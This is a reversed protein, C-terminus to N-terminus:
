AWETPPNSPQHAPQNSNLPLKPVFLSYLGTTIEFLYKVPAKCTKYSWNDGDDGNNKAAFFIWFPSM